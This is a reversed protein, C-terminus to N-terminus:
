AVFLDLVGAAAIRGTSRRYPRSMGIFIAIGEEEFRVGEERKRFPFNRENM